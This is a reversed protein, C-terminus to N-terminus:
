WGLPIAKKEVFYFDSVLSSSEWPIQQSNTQKIVEARVEKFVQEVTIGEMQMKEILQATYPSNRGVGDKAVRGPATAFALITNPPADLKSLGSSLKISKNKLGRSGGEKGLSRSNKQFGETFPNDRCADLVIINTRNNAKKMSTMLSAINFGKHKIETEKEIYTDVPILYNDGELQSGHGAYFFMGTGKTMKLKQIFEKVAIDMDNKSADTILRVDFDLTKLTKAMDLADNAPNKLPVAHQYDSNGIILAIKNEKAIAPSLLLSNLLLILFIRHM